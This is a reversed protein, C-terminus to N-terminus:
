PKEEWAKRIDEGFTYILVGVWGTTIPLWAWQPITAMNVMGVAHLGAVTPFGLGLFLALITSLGKWRYNTHTTGSGSHHDHNEEPMEEENASM